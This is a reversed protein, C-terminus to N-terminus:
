SVTPTENPIEKPSIRKRRIKCKIPDTTRTKRNHCNGCLMQLNYEEDAGMQHLPITHDLDQEPPLLHWCDPCRYRQRFAIQLRIRYSWRKRRVIRESVLHWSSYYYRIIRHRVTLMWFLDMVILLYYIGLAQLIIQIAVLVNM